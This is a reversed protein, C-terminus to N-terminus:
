SSRQLTFYGNRARADALSNGRALDAAIGEEHERIHDAASIVDHVRESPVAVVGDDDAIVLDNPAIRVGSLRVPKGVSTLQLRDKGTRPTHGRAHVSYGSAGLSAIDRCAGDIVTGAVDRRQAAMTILSGWISCDIRGGAEIVVIHGPEVDDIFDGVDGADRSQQDVYAVTFARGVIADGGSMRHVGALVGHIGCRDLADSIVTSRMSQRHLIDDTIM